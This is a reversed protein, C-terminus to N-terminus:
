RAMEWMKQSNTPFHNSAAQYQTNFVEIKASGFVIHRLLWENFLVAYNYFSQRIGHEPNAKFIAVFNNTRNRTFHSHVVDANQGAIFNAYFHAWVVECTSPDNEPIFLLWKRQSPQFGPLRLKSVKYILLVIFTRADTFFRLASQLITRRLPFSYM